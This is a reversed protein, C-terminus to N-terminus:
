GDGQEDDVVRVGLHAHARRLSAEVEEATDGKAFLFGLYRDGEPLPRVPRGPAISIDLGTIGPVRLAEEQGSVGELRGRAPIPLMMVGAARQERSLGDLPMGLAHAVILRELSLGVGFSLSRSCLGGISRAAVEILWATGGETRLEVHVPGEVLGMAACAAAATREVAAVASPALRSPTVYITEEFYPGELPDPKDFVALTELVGGRLLGEVAVEAGPVFTEVLLRGRPDEGADAAIARVRDGALKAGPPDDARIVGRSASLSTPKIVCPFGVTAAAAAVDEDPGVSAFRPQVVGAAALTERMALKDRTAMVADPPNHPLGLDGAAMAAALVGQDDVAVIGDIRRRRSLAVISAAAAEPRRLDIQLFTDKMIDALVQRRESAVVVEAGVEAAAALFDSARYTATPLILLLRAM